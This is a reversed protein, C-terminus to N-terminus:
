SILCRGTLVLLGAPVTAHRSALPPLHALQHRLYPENLSRRRDGSAHRM